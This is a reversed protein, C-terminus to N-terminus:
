QISWFSGSEAAILVLGTIKPLLRLFRALPGPADHKGGRLPPRNVRGTLPQEGPAFFGPM